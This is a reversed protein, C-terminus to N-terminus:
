SLTARFSIIPLNKQEWKETLAFAVDPQKRHMPMSCVSLYRACFTCSSLWTCFPTPVVSVKANKRQWFWTLLRSIWFILVYQRGTGEEAVEKSTGSGAATPSGTLFLFFLFLM